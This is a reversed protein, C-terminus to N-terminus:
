DALEAYYDIPGTESLWIEAGSLLAMPPEFNLLLGRKPTNASTTIEEVTAVATQRFGGPGTAEVALTTHLAYRELQPTPGDPLALLGLGPVPLTNAVRLLLLPTPM